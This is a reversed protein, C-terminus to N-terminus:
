TTYIVALLGNRRGLTVLNDSAWLISSIDVGSWENIGVHHAPSADDDLPLKRICIDGNSCGVALHYGGPSLAIASPIGSTKLRSLSCQFQRDSTCRRIESSYVVSRFPPLSDNESRRLSQLQHSLRFWTTIHDRVATLRFALARDERLGNAELV